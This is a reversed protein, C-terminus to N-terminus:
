GSGRGEPPPAWPSTTRWTGRRSGVYWVWHFLSRTLVVTALLAFFGLASGFTGTRLFRRLVVAAACLLTAVPYTYFLWNEYLVTPPSAVFALTLIVSLVRGVGLSRLLAHLAITLVLGLGVYVMALAATAHEGLLKLALGLGLNFLPPQSHLHLLSEVLRDQLLVPDVFQWFRELPTTDFRIGAIRYAVRSVVFGAVIAILPGVDRTGTSSAEEEAGPKV